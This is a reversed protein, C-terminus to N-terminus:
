PLVATRGRVGCGAGGAAGATRRADAMLAEIEAMGRPVGASIWEVGTATVAYDDEIRVGIDRYREVAPRLRAIMARNRPTDPLGDFASPGVYLGPEVTFVDGPAFRQPPAYFQAPDHVDLGIGHGGYGHLAYLSRQRCGGPPCRAGAPADFTADASDILGLRVLGREVVVRGSDSAAAASGGPRIQRVYAAQADLVIQYIERQAPTFRGGVPVTRTVDAAYGGAAAAADVLLLDGDRMVRGNASYHLTLANPGSAFISAYAPGDGGLRRFAAETAAQVDYEGCGPAAAAMMVRHAAASIQAARRLQAVEAPSKRARLALVASDLTRVALAPRARKLDAVLRAGRTLTDIRAYDQTQVDSVVYLPLGATLLSDLAPRLEGLPRGAVGARAAAEAPGLRAGVYKEERLDRPPVYLTAAAAGRGRKVLLLAADAGEHGTLWAFSPLQHFNPWHHVPEVAGFALVVGSDVRSLLSDRRAAYEARAIQAGAAAPRAAAAATVGAAALAFLVVRRTCRPLRM